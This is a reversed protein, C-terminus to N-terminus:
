RGGSMQPQGSLITPTLFIVLESRADTLPASASTGDALTISDVRALAEDLQARTILGSEVLSEGLRIRRSM